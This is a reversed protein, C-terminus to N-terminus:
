RAHTNEQIRLRMLPAAPTATPSSPTDCFRRLTATSRKDFLHQM